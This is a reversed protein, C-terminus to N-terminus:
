QINLFFSIFVAFRVCVCVKIYRFGRELFGSDAGPGIYYRHNSVATYKPGMKNFM